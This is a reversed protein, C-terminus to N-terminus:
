GYVKFVIGLVRFHISAGADFGLDFCSVNNFHFGALALRLKPSSNGGPLRSTHM